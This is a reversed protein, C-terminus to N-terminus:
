EAEEELAGQENLRCLPKLGCFECPGGIPRVEAVGQVFENALMEVIGASRDLYDDWDKKVTATQGSFQKGRSFGVAKVERPKLQGFFVGDVTRGASAAYVLLQPEEPRDGELKPRRQQGSKYDILVLNGNSLRDIRDVRLQLRLGPVEFTRAEEVTEVTFDQQRAREVDLWDLIVETLRERETEVNLRHLPGVDRVAVAEAIAEDVLRQLEEGPMRKLNQSSELKRWVLELAKHAFSGRDLADFGFSADEPKRADLRYKAFAQFPCQSQAKIIATGGRMEGQAVFAPAMGDGFRELTATAVSEWPLWGEWVAVRGRKVFVSAMTSLRGTYTVSVDAASEFLAQTKRVREDRVAQPGVGAVHHQKLLRFPILPSLRVPPPWNEESLGVVISADFEVGRAAETDLVYIPAAWEGREFRGRLLRGLQGIAAEYPVTESLLGLSSLMSLQEKWQEVTREEKASLETDGPWGLATLVDSIWESWESYPRRESLKALLKEVRQWRASLLPCSGLVREVDRFTVDLERRRRIAIDALARQNQEEKAGGLFPSRLIAGADAQDIRAKALELMLLAAKVVPEESLAGGAAIRFLSGATQTEEMRAAASPFFVAELTRRVLGHKEALGPVFLALTGEPRAEFLYRLRRAAFTVEQPFSEFEKAVSKKTARGGDFGVRVGLSGMASWLEELAPAAKEFGVFVTLGPQWREEKLWDTLLRRLGTRTAWGKERCRKRFSKNWLQFQLADSHEAWAEGEGPIHWDALVSAAERALRVTATPDFLNPHEQEIVSHWLAQEQEISLLTPVDRLRYRAEQWCQQLWVDFSVIAPREWTEVGQRLRGRAFEERGVGALFANPTVITAKQEIWGALDRAALRM